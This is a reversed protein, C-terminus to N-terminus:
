LLGTLFVLGVALKRKWALQLDMIAKIPLILLYVDIVLGVSAFPIANKQSAYEEDSFAHSLWTEGKRPATLVIQVISTAVYFATTFAIGIYVCIRMWRFPHFIESYLQFLTLKAALLTPNVLVVSLFAITKWNV